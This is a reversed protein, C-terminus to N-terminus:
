VSDEANIPLLSQHDVEDEDEEDDDFESMDMNIITIDEAQDNGSVFSDDILTRNELEIYREEEERIEKEVIFDIHTICAYYYHIKKIINSSLL